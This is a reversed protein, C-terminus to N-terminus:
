HETPRRATQNNLRIQTSHMPKMWEEGSDPVM